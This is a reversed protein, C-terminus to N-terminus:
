PSRLGAKVRAVDPADARYIGHRILFDIAVLAVDRAFDRSDTLRALVRAAPWLEFAAVEGDANRPVFSEPLELDFCFLEGNWAYGRDPAHTLHSIRGVPRATRALAAPIGAEEACEKVLNEMVGIGVPQGGAVIQDLKGPDTSKHAARTAVWLHLSDGRRVYGNVHVGYTRVGFLLAGAREMEFLPPTEFATGIAYRENRWGPVLGQNKLNLLAADVIGGEAPSRIETPGVVFGPCAALPEALRHPIWGIPTPGAYWRRYASPEFHQAEAVRDLLSV